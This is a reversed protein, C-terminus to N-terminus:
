KIAVWLLYVSRGRWDYRPLDAIREREAKLEPWRDLQAKSAPRILAAPKYGYHERATHAYHYQIGAAKNLDIAEREVDGVGRLEFREGDIKCTRVPQEGDQTRLCGHNKGGCSCRCIEERAHWCAEGCTTGTLIAMELTGM